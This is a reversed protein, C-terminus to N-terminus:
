QHDGDFRRNFRGELEDIRRGQALIRGDMATLKEDHRGQIVLIEVLKKLEGQMTVVQASLADIRGRMTYVFGVGGGLFALIQLVDGFRIGIAELMALAPFM